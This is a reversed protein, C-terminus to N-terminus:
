KKRKKLLVKANDIAQSTLEAGSLMRAIENIREEESLCTIHTTTSHENDNKYVKYHFDGKSAVQPLHTISFVQMYNSMDSMINGMKDAIEGSVGTDIEDFIITPLSVAGAMISKIVLMVRSIEGGSAIEAVPMLVQNKNASFLFKVNDAGNEDFNNKPTISVEFKVNPM